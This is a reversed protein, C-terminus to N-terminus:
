GGDEGEVGVVRVKNTSGPVGLPTGGGLDVTGGNNLIRRSEREGVSFFEDVGSLKGIIIPFVGWFLTLRNRVGEWPTM